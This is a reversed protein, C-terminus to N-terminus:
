PKGNQIVEHIVQVLKPTTVDVSYRNEVTKRAQIGMNKRLNEDGLLLELKREWEEPNAALCGNVGQQIIEENIGVPSCIAPIGLAMYQLAKLGCKGKSWEDDRLPMLGIDIRRLDEVESQKKWEMFELPIGNLKQTDIKKLNNSIIALKFANRKALNTLIPIMENFYHNNAASGSWGITIPKSEKKSSMSYTHTDVPTPIIYIDKVYKKAFDALFRNGVIMGKSSKFLKVPEEADQMWRLYSPFAGPLKSYIADDIDVLYPVKLSQFWEVLGRCRWSTLGKQIILLDYNKAKSLQQYRTMVQGFSDIWKQIKGKRNPSLVFYDAQIDSKALSDRYQLVRFWTSPLSEDGMAYFAVKM